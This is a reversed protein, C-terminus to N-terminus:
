DECLGKARQIPVLSTAVDAIQAGPRLEQANSRRKEVHLVHEDFEAGIRCAWHAQENMKCVEQDLGTLVASAANFDWDDAIAVGLSSGM